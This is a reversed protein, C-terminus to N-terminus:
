QTTFVNRIRFKLEDWFVLDGYEKRVKLKEKYMLKPQASTKSQLHQRYRAIPTPIFVPSNNQLLHLLLEYDMVYKLDERFLPKRVLFKKNFFCAPQFIKPLMGNKLMWKPEVPEGEPPSIIKGKSDIISCQGYVVPTEPNISFAAVIKEVANKELVDDSNLYAFFEGECREFGKNIAHTQGNDKESVWFKIRNSYKKILEVSGDTSGGDIIIYEINKYSQELVSLITEELFQAQNLSPTVISVKM